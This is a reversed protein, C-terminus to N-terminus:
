ALLDLYNNHSNFQVAYGLIPFLPTYWYYNAPGLGIIPSIKIIKFMIQAAAVRTMYSYDNYGAFLVRAFSKLKVSAMAGGAVAALWFWRSGSVVSECGGDGSL